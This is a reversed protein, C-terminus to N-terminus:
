DGRPESFNEVAGKQCAVLVKQDFLSLMQSLMSFMPANLSSIWEVNAKHDDDTAHDFTKDGYSMISDALNLRATMVERERPSMSKALETLLRDGDRAKRTRWAGHIERNKGRIVFPETYGDPNFVIDDIIESATEATLGVLKLADAYAKRPDHELAEQQDRLKEEEMELERERETKPQPARAQPPKPPTLLVEKEGVRQREEKAM